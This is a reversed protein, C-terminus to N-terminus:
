SQQLFNKHGQLQPIGQLQHYIGGLNCFNPFLRRLNVGSLTKSSNDLSVSQSELCVIIDLRLFIM